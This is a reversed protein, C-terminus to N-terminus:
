PSLAYAIVYGGEESAATGAERAANERALPAAQGDPVAVVVYQRGTAPSVYSM